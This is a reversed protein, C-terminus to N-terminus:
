ATGPQIIARATIAPGKIVWNGPVDQDPGFIYPTVRVFTAHGDEGAAFDVTSVSTGDPAIAGTLIQNKPEYPGKWFNRAPPLVRPNCFQIMFRQHYLQLGNFISFKIYPHNPLPPLSNVYYQALPLSIVPPVIDEWPDYPTSFGLLRLWNFMGRHTIYTHRGAFKFGMALAWAKYNDRFDDTLDQWAQTAMTFASRINQQGDSGPNVPNVRERALIPNEPGSFYTIGGVSGRATSWIHSTIVAM